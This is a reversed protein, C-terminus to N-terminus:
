DFMFVEYDRSVGIKGNELGIAELRLLMNNDVQPVGFVDKWADGPDSIPESEYAYVYTDNFPTHTPLLQLLDAANSPLTEYQDTAYIVLATTSDVVTSEFFYDITGTETAPFVQFYPPYSPDIFDAVENPTDSISRIPSLGRKLMNLNRAQFLQYATPTFEEGLANTFPVETTADQWTQKEADSRERWFAALFQFYGKQTSNKM